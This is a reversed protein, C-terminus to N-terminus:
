MPLYMCVAGGPPSRGQQNDQIVLNNVRHATQNEMVGCLPMLSKVPLATHYLWAKYITVGPYAPQQPLRCAGKGYSWISKM